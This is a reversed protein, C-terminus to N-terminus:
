EGEKRAKKRKRTEPYLQSKVNMWYSNRAHVRRELEKANTDLPDIANDLCKSGEKIIIEKWQNLLRQSADPDSSLDAQQSSLEKLFWGMFKPKISSWYAYTASEILHGLANKNGEGSRPYAKKIAWGIQEEVIDACDIADQVQKGANKVFSVGWPLSLREITWEHLRVEKGDKRLGYVELLLPKKNSITDTQILNDYQSVVAPKEFNENKATTENRHLLTLPGIDRWPERSEFPKIPKIEDKTIEYAVQPDCWKDSAKLGGGFYMEHVLSEKVQGTYTCIGGDGPLLRIRRPRWTLGQLLSYQDVQMGPKVIMDSRWAPPENSIPKGLPPDIVCSNYLITQFLNEGKILAYLPPGRNLGRVYGIGTYFTFAPIAALGRACQEFSFAHADEMNHNIFKNNLSPSIHQMLYQIPWIKTKKDLENDEPSQMFPHNKDFLDFRDKWKEAYTDIVSRDFQKQEIAKRLGPENKLEMADMVFAILLRYIGFQILPSPDSIEALNHAEHLTDLIGREKVEGSMDM